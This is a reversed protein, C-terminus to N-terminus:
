QSPFQAAIAQFCPWYDRPAVNDDLVIVLETRGQAKAVVPAPDNVDAISITEIGAEIAAGAFGHDGFVLDPRGEKLMLQMPRASHTHIPQVGNTLVGVPGRYAIRRRKWGERYEVGDALHFRKAGHMELLEAVGTYLRILGVPHGTAVLVSEGREAAEALRRGAAECANLVLYPDIASPGGRLSPDPPFGAEAAMLGLVEDPDVASVGTLGFQSVPDGQVLLQIKWRVNARDHSTEPGAAGGAVLAAALEDRGFSGRVWPDEPRGRDDPEFMRAQM